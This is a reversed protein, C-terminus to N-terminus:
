KNAIWGEFWSTHETLFNDIYDFEKQWDGFYVLGVSTYENLIPWVKFNYKAAKKISDAQKAMEDHIAEMQPKLAAWEEKLIKVFAPDTLLNRFYTQSEWYSGYVKPKIGEKPTAWGSKGSAALGYSWEADWVPCAKLKSDHNKLFYYWNTDMNGSLEHVLFWKAFSQYDIYKQVGNTESFNNSYIANEFKNMFDQIFNYEADGQVIKADNADPYKFTFAHNHTTIFYCPESGYYNDKEIVFGNEDVPMRDKAGEVQETLLYVGMEKGNIRVQVFKHKVDNEVKVHKAICHMSWERMLSHDCYLALLVWDKNEPFGCMSQKENFRIKYPKKPYGATANGRTHIKGDGEVVLRTDGGYVPDFEKITCPISPEKAVVEQSHETTIAIVPIGYNAVKAAPTLDEKKCSSLSLALCFLASITLTKTNM